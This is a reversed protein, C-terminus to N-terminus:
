DVVAFVFVEGGDELRQDFLADVVAVADFVGVLEQWCTFLQDLFCVRQFIFPLLLFGDVHVQSGAGDVAYGAKGVDVAVDLLFRIFSLLLSIQLTGSKEIHGDLVFENRVGGARVFVFPLFDREVDADRGGGGFGLGARSDNQHAAEVAM